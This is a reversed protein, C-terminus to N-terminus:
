VITPPGTPPAGVPFIAIVIAIYETPAPPPPVDVTGVDMIEIPPHVVAPASLGAFPCTQDTQQDPEPTETGLHITQVAGNGSCMAVSIVGSEHNVSPMFGAPMMARVLVAALMLLCAISAMGPNMRSWPARADSIVSVGIM